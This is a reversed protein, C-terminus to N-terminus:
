EPPKPSGDVTFRYDPSPRFGYFTHTILEFKQQLTAGAVCTGTAPDCVGNATFVDLELGISENGLNGDAIDATSAAYLLPSPGTSGNINDLYTGGSWAEFTSTRVAIRLTNGLSQTSEWIMEGTIWTPVGSDMAIFHTFEDATIQQGTLSNPAACVAVLVVATGVGCEIYGTHKDPVAYPKVFGQAAELTLRVVPADANNAEVEVSTQGEQFGLKSAAVFYTGPELGEFGFGGNDNTTNSLTEGNAKVTVIAGM